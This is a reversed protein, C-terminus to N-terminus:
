SAVRGVRVLYQKCAKCVYMRDPEGALLEAQTTPVESIQSVIRPRSCLECLMVRRGDHDLWGDREARLEVARRNPKPM